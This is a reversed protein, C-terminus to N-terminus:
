PCLGWQFLMRCCLTCRPSLVLCPYFVSFDWQQQLDMCGLEWFACLFASLPFPLPLGLGTETGCEKRNIFNVPLSPLVPSIFPPLPFSPLCWLPLSPFPWTHKISIFLTWSEDSEQCWWVLFLNEELKGAAETATRGGVLNSSTNFHSLWYRPHHCARTM